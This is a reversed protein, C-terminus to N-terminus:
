EAGGLKVEILLPRHDSGTADGLTRQTVVAGNRTLAHDIPIMGLSLMGAPWSAGPASLGDFGNGRLSDTLGGDRVMKRYQASWPTANLDGILLFPDDALTAMETAFLLQENRTESYLRSVPPLTHLSILQIHSADFRLLADIAPVDTKDLAMPSTDLYVVEIAKDERLWMGIGFNDTRPEAAALRYGPLQDDLADVWGQNIEQLLVVDAGSNRIMAAVDAKRPNSTHVNYHLVTLSPATDDDRLEAARRSDANPLLLPAVFWGNFALGLAAIAAMKLWRLLLLCLATVAFAATYQFRFHTLLDLAWDQSAALSFLNLIVLFVVGASLHLGLFLNSWTRKPKDHSQATKAEPDPVNQNRARHNGPLM